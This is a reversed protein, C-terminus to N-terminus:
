PRAIIVPAQAARRQKEREERREVRDEANYLKQAQHRIADCKWCTAYAVPIGLFVAMGIFLWTLFNNWEIQQYNPPIPALPPLPPGSPPHYRFNVHAVFVLPATSLLLLAARTPM